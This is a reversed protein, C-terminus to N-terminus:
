LQERKKCVTHFGQEPPNRRLTLSPGRIRLLFNTGILRPRTSLEVRWNCEALKVRKATSSIQEGFIREAGASKLDREQAVLGAAQDTTSTRAYGVIM